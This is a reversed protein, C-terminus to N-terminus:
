YPQFYFFSNTFPCQKGWTQKWSSLPSGQCGEGAPLLVKTRCLVALQEPWRRKGPFVPLTLASPDSTNLLPNRCINSSSFASPRM